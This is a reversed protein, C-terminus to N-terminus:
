GGNWPKRIVTPTGIAAHAPDEHGVQQQPRLRVGVGLQVVRAAAVARHVPRGHEEDSTPVNRPQPSTVVM